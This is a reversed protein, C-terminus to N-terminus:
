HGGPVAGSTFALIIEVLFYVVFVIVTFKILRNAAQDLRKFAAELKQDGAKEPAGIPEVTVKANVLSIVQDNDAMLVGDSVLFTANTQKM